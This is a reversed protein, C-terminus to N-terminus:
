LFQLARLKEDLAVVSRGEVAEKAGPLRSEARGRPHLPGQFHIGRLDSRRFPDSPRTVPKANPPQNKDHSCLDSFKADFSSKESYNVEEGRPSISIM